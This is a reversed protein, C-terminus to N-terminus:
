SESKQITKILSSILCSHEHTLIRQQLIEPSDTELVPVIVQEIVDGEDYNETVYHVTCGSQKEGAAIVASHVNIGYFGKGGFKPLLSPHINIIRNRYKDIISSPIKSLYGALVIFEAQFELLAADIATVFTSEDSYEKKSVIRHPINSTEARQIAKINERSAILGSIRYNSNSDSQADILAQFNSGSGSAFVVVNKM